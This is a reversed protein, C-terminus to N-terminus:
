NLAGTDEAVAHVIMDELEEFVAALILEQEGITVGHIAPLKIRISRLQHDRRLTFGCLVEMDGADSLIDVFLSELYEVYRDALSNSLQGILVDISSRDM